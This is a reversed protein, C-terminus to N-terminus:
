KLKRRLILPNNTTIVINKANKEIFELPKDSLWDSLNNEDIVYVGVAGFRKIAREMNCFSAANRKAIGILKIRKGGKKINQKTGLSVGDIFPLYMLPTFIKFDILIEAFTIPSNNKRQIQKLKWLNAPWFSLHVINDHLLPYNELIKNLEKLNAFSTNRQKTEIKIQKEKLLNKNNNFFDLFCTLKNLDYTQNSDWTVESNYTSKRYGYRHKAIDNFGLRKVRGTGDSVDDIMRDHIVVPVNDKTFCIDFEFGDSVKLLEPDNFIIELNALSNEPFQTMHFGLRHAIFRFESASNIKM